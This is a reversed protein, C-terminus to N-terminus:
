FPTEAVASGSRVMERFERAQEYLSKSPVYGLHTVKLVAWSGQDNSRGVTTLNYMQSFMPAPSNNPLRLGQALTMWKRSEKIQTATLALLVPAGVGNVVTIGYHERTDVLWLGDPTVINGDRDRESNALLAEGEAENLSGRFGGGEERPQWLNFVRRFHCPVFDVGGTENKFLEGTVTNFLDGEEAGKVYEPQTKKCEPSMSQLVKLFPIAFAERSAEEFGCGADAAFMEMDAPVLASPQAVELDKTKSM